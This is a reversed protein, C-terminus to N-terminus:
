RRTAPASRPSRTTSGRRSRRRPGDAPVLARAGRDRRRPSSCSTAAAICGRAGPEAVLRLTEGLYPVTDGRAAVADRADQAERLRRDIWPRLEVVAREAERMAARQPLIVEVGKEPDVAVRVRRSRTSRRVTYELPDAAM